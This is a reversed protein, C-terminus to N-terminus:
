KEKNAKNKNAKKKTHEVVVKQYTTTEKQEEVKPEYGQTIIQFNYPEEKALKEATEDALNFVFGTQINKVKLM